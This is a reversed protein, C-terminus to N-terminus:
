NNLLELLPRERHPLQVPPSQCLVTFYVGLGCLAVSALGCISDRHVCGSLSSWQEGKDKGQDRSESGGVAKTGEVYSGHRVSVWAHAHRRIQTHTRTHVTHMDIHVLPREEAM